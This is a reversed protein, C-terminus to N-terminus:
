KAYKPTLMEPADGGVVGSEIIKPSASKQSASGTGSRFEEPLPLIDIEEDTETRETVEDIEKLKATDEIKVASEGIKGSM